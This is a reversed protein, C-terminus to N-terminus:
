QKLLKRAVNLVRKEDDCGAWEGNMGIAEEYYHLMDSLVARLRANDAQMAEIAWEAGSTFAVGATAISDNQISKYQQMFDVFASAIEEKTM